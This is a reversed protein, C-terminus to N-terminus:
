GEFWPSPVRRTFLLPVSLLEQLGASVVDKPELILHVTNGMSLSKTGHSVNRFDMHPGRFDCKAESTTLMGLNLVELAPFKSLSRLISPWGEDLETLKVSDLFLRQMKASCSALAKSLQAESIEISELFLHELNALNCAFLLRTALAYSDGAYKYERMELHLSFLCDTHELLNVLANTNHEDLSEGFDDDASDTSRFTFSHMISICQWLRSGLHAVLDEADYFSRRALALECIYSSTSAAAALIDKHSIIDEDRFFRSEILDFSIYAEPALDQMDLFVSQILALSPRTDADLPEYPLDQAAERMDFQQQADRIDLFEQGPAIHVQTHDHRELPDSTFTVSRLTNVLRASGGLFRKLSLWRSEYYICCYSDQFTKTFRDFVVGELTRCTLRLTPLSEDNLNDTIRIVLELPLALLRSEDKTEM